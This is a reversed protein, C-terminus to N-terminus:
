KTNKKIFYKIFDEDEVEVKLFRKFSYERITEYTYYSNIDEYSLGYKVLCEKGKELVEKSIKPDSFDEKFTLSEKGLEEKLLKFPFINKETKYALGTMATKLLEPKKDEYEKIFKYSINFYDFFDKIPYKKKIAGTKIEDSLKRDFSYFKNEYFKIWEKEKIKKLFDNKYFDKELDKFLYFNNIDEYSLGFIELCEKGKEFYLENINENTRKDKIKKPTKSLAKQLSKFNFDKEQEKLFVYGTFVIEFDPDSHKLLQKYAKIEKLFQERTYLTKRRGYKM